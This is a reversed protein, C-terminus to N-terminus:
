AKPGHQIAGEREKIKAQRMFEPRWAYVLPQYLQWKRRNRQYAIELPLFLVRFLIGTMFIAPGWSLGSATHLSEFAAHSLLLAENVLQHPRSAHFHRSQRISNRGILVSSLFRTHRTQGLRTPM